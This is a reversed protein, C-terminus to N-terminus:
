PIDATAAQNHTFAAGPPSPPRSPDSTYPFPARVKGGWRAGHTLLGPWLGLASMLHAAPRPRMALHAFVAALRMRPRFEAQWAKAYHRQLGAHLSAAPVAATGPTRAAAEILHHCLLAASQLAMSMGEGLIPHAEGAANGVSFVADGPRLHQGPDLPGSALWAGQLEAGQLSQRIVGCQSQLWSQVAEGARLGPAGARIALLRDRRICCALTTIGGDGLVMGGYGGQLALVDIVGTRRAAGSFNAKFALLDGANRPQHRRPGGSPLDEWSGHADIVLCARVRRLAASGVARLEVHWAGASGQFNQVQWPQLVDAGEARARELLLVDLTERGLALGWRHAPDEAAPLDATVVRDGRHLAVQQLTPGALAEVADAVGLMALLPLNSAAICEGCVKRRPFPQKEVLAVSWGARALLIATASGAPGAGVILADFRARPATAM